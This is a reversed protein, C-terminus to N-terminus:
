QTEKIIGYVSITANDLGDMPKTLDIYIYIYIFASIEHTLTHPEVLHRMTHCKKKKMQSEVEDLNLM